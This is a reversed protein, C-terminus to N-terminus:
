DRLDNGLTRLQCALGPGVSQEPFYVLSLCILVSSHQTSCMEQIQQAQKRKLSIPSQPKNIAELKLQRYFLPFNNLIGSFGIKRLLEKILM